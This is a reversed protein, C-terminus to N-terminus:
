AWTASRREVQRQLIRSVEDAVGQPDNSEIHFENTQNIRDEDLALKLASNLRKIENAMSAFDDGAKYTFNSSISGALSSSGWGNTISATDQMNSRFEDIWAQAKGQDDIVPTIKFETSEDEGLSALKNAIDSELGSLMKLVRATLSDSGDEFGEALGADSYLGVERFVRSPSHIGLYKNVQKVVKKALKEAAKGTASLGESSILGDAFGKACNVGALAYSAIVQDALKDDLKLNADYKKSFKEFEESTM